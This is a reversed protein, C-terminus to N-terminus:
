EGKNKSEYLITEEDFSVFHVVGVQCLFDAEIKKALAIAKEGEFSYFGTTHCRWIEGEKVFIEIGNQM